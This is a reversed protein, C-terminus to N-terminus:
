IMVYNDTEFKWTKTIITNHNRRAQFYTVDNDMSKFTIDM